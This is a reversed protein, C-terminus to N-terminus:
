KGINSAMDASFFSHFKTTKENLLHQLHLLCQHPNLRALIGVSTLQDGYTQWDKIANEIEGEEEDDDLVKKACELQVQIYSEVIQHSVTRM